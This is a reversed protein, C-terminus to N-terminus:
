AIQGGADHYWKTVDALTHVPQGYPSGPLSAWTKNFANIGFEFNGDMIKQCCDHNSFLLVCKLDQTVPDFMEADQEAMGYSVLQKILGQETAYMIQYAGAADSYTEGFPRRINPHHMMDTFRLDNSPTSGFLYNYGDPADTGESKRITRMFAQISANQLANKLFVLSM